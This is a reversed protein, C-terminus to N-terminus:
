KRGNVGWPPRQYAWVALTAAALPTVDGKSHLRSWAFSEGLPRKRAGAVAADLELQEVHWLDGADPGPEGLLDLFTQAATTFDSPQMEDVYLGATRARDIHVGDGARRDAWVEALKRGHASKLAKVAPILWGVGPRHTVAVGIGGAPMRGVVAISASTREHHTAFAAVFPPALDDLDPVTQRAWVDRDIVQDDVGAPRIGLMTRAFMPRDHALRAVARETLFGHPELAPIHARWINRDAVDSGDPASWDFYAIRTEPDTLSSVGIEQYHMLLGDTGDGVASAVWLQPDTNVLMTPELATPLALDPHSFAEDITVDDVDSQGHGATDTNAVIVLKSGNVWTIGERGNSKVATYKGVIARCRSLHLGEYDDLIKIRAAGRDQAAYVIRSFDRRWAKATNKSEILTTKGNQRGVVLVVTDYFLNGNADVEGAVDAVHRQWGIAQRGTLLEHWKCWAPGFTPRTPNRPTGYRPPPFSSSPKASTTAPRRRGKSGSSTASRASSAAPLSDV